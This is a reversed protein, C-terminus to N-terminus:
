GKAPCFFENFPRLTLILFSFFQPIWTVLRNKEGLWIHFTGTLTSFWIHCTSSDHQNRNGDSRTLILNPFSPLQTMIKTHDTLTVSPWSSESSGSWLCSSSIFSFSDLTARLFASDVLSSLELFGTQVVSDPALGLKGQMKGKRNLPTVWVVHMHSMAWRVSCLGHHEVNTSSTPWWTPPWLLHPLQPGSQGMGGSLRFSVVATGPLVANKLYDQGLPRMYKAGYTGM